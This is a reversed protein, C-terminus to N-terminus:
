WLFTAPTYMELFIALWAEWLSGCFQLLCVLHSSFFWISPPLSTCFIYIYRSFYFMYVLKNIGKNRQKNTTTSFNYNSNYQLILLIHNTRGFCLFFFWPRLSVFSNTNCDWCTSFYPLLEWLTFSILLFEELTSVLKLFWSSIWGTPSRLALYFISVNGGLLSHSGSSSTSLLISSSLEGVKKPFSSASRTFSCRLLVMSLFQNDGDFPASASHSLFSSFCSFFSIM